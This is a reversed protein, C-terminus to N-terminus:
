DIAPLLVFRLDRIIYMVYQMNHTNTMANVDSLAFEYKHLMSTCEFKVMFLNSM